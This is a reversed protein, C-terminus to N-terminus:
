NSDVIMIGLFTHNSREDFYNNNELNKQKLLKAYSKPAMFHKGLLVELRM